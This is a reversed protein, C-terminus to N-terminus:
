RSLFIDACLLSIGRARCVIKGVRGCKCSETLLIVISCKLQVQGERSQFVQALLRIKM